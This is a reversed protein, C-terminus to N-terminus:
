DSGFSGWDLWLRGDRYVGRDVDFGTAGNRIKDHVNRVPQLLTDRGLDFRQQRVLALYAKNLDLARRRSPTLLWALDHEGGPAAQRVAAEDLKGGPFFRGLMEENERFEDAGGVRRFYTLAEPDAHGAQPADPIGALTQHGWGTMGPLKRPFSFSQDVIVGITGHCGMCYYHEETTQLRLRGKADEIYGQFQWRFENLLGADARGKFLPLIGREKKDKEEAYKLSIYAQDPYSDKFSYRVEKMRRSLLSPADPDIYRVTHLFETGPPYLFRRVEVDRAAGVYHKPLGILRRALGLRGNRDVDVQLAAEDIPEISRVVAEDSVTDPVTMAAELIALNLKYHNLSPKGAEDTYFVAPLRILVDDTSGNTPWFTGLFPKYRFARWWSGDRAFGDPDFGQNFDLDPKWGKFDQRQSLAKRLSTYNDTRIYSLVEQDSIKAAQQQRDEFLHSWHNTLGQDSFAYEIQLEWDDMENRAHRGTHCTWCPNSVGDTRTYCQPPIVAERNKVQLRTSRAHELPNFVPAAYCAGAFWYLAVGFICSTVPRYPKMMRTFIM